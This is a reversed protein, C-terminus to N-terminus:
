RCGHGRELRNRAKPTLLFAHNTGNIIGNGVIWGSANIGTAASLTWGSNAPILTNLDLMGIAPFWVFARSGSVGVIHGCPNVAAASSYDDGSLTGLDEMGNEKTWVFAHNALNIGVVNGAFNIAYAQGPGLDRVGSRESWLFAHLDGDEAEFYGVVQGLDNNGSAGSGLGGLASNLNLEGSSQTWVFAQPPEVTTWGAVQDFDNISRGGYGDDVYVISQMGVQPTWLFAANDSDDIWSGGTVHGKDNISAAWSPGASYLTGLDEMGAAQTWLFAHSTPPGDANGVIQGFSNIAAAQSYTGGPFTGVDTINYLQAYSSPVVVCIFLASPWLYKISLYKSIKMWEM